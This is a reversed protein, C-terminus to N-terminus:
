KNGKRFRKVQKNTKDFADSPKQEPAPQQAPVEKKPAASSRNQRPGRRVVPKESLSVKIWGSSKEEIFLEDTQSFAKSCAFILVGILVAKKM